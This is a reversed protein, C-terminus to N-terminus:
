NLAENNSTDGIEVAAQLAAPVNDMVLRGLGDVEKNQRDGIDRISFWLFRLLGPAFVVIQATNDGREDKLWDDIHHQATDQEQLLEHVRTRPLVAIERLRFLQAPSPPDLRVDLGLVFCHTALKDKAFANPSLAWLAMRWM